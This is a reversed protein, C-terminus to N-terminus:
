EEKFSTRISDVFPKMLFDFLTREGTLIMVDAPMGVILEVNSGLTEAQDGDVVIKALFYPEGTREDVFRDASVSQLTGYIRPLNRQAYATLIIQANMGPFVTDIDTPRVRADIILAADDPVIDLIEGGPSLIGGTETTVQINLIQGSIPAKVITRHLADMREPIQSRITALETRVQSLEESIEEKAQQGIAALQLETEGIQQGLRAISARNAAREAKLNAEQRQLALYPSLRQLGQEYLRQTAELEQGVLDLQQNQAAIFEELGIIEENLQDIRKGLIRVRADHVDRRNEFLQQQGTRAVEVRAAAENMLDDPFSFEILGQDAMEAVLRSETALLFITRERLEDLRALARVSELTILTAGAEVHQGERVHIRQIIGGELHQVTKRSGDPSVVGPAIAASALPAYWAWGGLVGFFLVTVGVGLLRAGRTQSSLPTRPSQAADSGLMVRLLLAVILVGILGVVVFVAPTHLDAEGSLLKNIADSAKGWLDM